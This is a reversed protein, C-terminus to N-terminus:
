CPPITSVRATANPWGSRWASAPRDLPTGCRPFPHGMWRSRWGPWARRRPFAPIYTESFVVLDVQGACQAILALAQNLNAAVDGDGLTSQILRIRPGNM